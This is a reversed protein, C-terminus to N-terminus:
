FPAATVTVIASATTGSLPHQATITVTGSAIATVM